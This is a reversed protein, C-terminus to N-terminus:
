AFEKVVKLTLGTNQLHQAKDDADDKSSCVDIVLQACENKDRVWMNEDMDIGASHVQSLLEARCLDREKFNKEEFSGGVALIWWKGTNQLSVM